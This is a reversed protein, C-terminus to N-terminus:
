DAADDSAFQHLELPASVGVPSPSNYGTLTTEVGSVPASDNPPM